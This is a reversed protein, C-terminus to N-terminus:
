LIDYSVTLEVQPGFSQTGNLAQVVPVDVAVRVLLDRWVNVLVAPNLSGVFGGTNPVDADNQLHDPWAYHFNVGLQLAVRNWPQLQLNTSSYVSQGFRYGRPGATPYRLLATTFVSMTGGFWAYTAGGLPDWSGSGPQDDDPYPFGQADHLRPGTPTKVGAVLWLLHHPAFSRDRAVVVRGQLELDGLGAFATHSTHTSLDTGIFPLTAALTIRPHPTYALSLQSRSSIKREYTPGDGDSGVGVREDVALRLRNKYPKEVGVATLTPDACGCTACAIADRAAGLVILAVLVCAARASHARM